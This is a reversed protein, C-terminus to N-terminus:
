GKKLLVNDNLYKIRNEVLVMEQLQNKYGQRVKPWGTKTFGDPYEDKEGWLAKAFDHSFILTELAITFVGESDGYDIIIGETDCDQVEWKYHTLDHKFGNKIAKKIVEIVVEENMNRM